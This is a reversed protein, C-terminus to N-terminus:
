VGNAQQEEKPYCKECLFVNDEPDCAYNSSEFIVTSCGECIAIAHHWNQNEDTVHVPVFDPNEKMAQKAAEGPDSAEVEFTRAQNRALHVLFKAM